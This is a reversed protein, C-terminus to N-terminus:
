RLLGVLRCRKMVNCLVYHTASSIQVFKNQLKEETTNQSQNRPFSWKLIRLLWFELSYNHLEAEHGLLALAQEGNQTNATQYINSVKAV